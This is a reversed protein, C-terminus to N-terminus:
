NRRMIERYEEWTLGLDKAEQFMEIAKRAEEKAKLAKASKRDRKTSYEEFNDNSM